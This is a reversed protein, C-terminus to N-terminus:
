RSGGGAAARESGGGPFYECSLSFGIEGSGSAKGATGGATARRSGPPLNAARPRYATRQLRETGPYVRSFSSSKMLAEELNVFVEYNKARGELQLDVRGQASVSPRVSSLRVDAPMVRELENFLQTWSFVRNLIAVNAFEARKQLRASNLEALAKGLKREEADLQALESRQTQLGGGVLNLVWWYYGISVLNIVTVVLLVGVCCSFLLRYLNDNRSPRLSLNIRRGM